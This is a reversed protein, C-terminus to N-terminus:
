INRFDPKELTTATIKLKTRKAGTYKDTWQDLTLRGEVYIESGKQFNKRCYDALQGSIAVDVFCVDEREEGQANRIKRSVALGFDGILTGERTAKVVPDRALRGILIVKNYFM